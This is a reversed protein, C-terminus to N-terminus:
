GLREYLAAIRERYRAVSFLAAQTRGRLALEAIVERDSGPPTGAENPDRSILNALQGVLELDTGDM